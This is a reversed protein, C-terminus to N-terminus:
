NPNLNITQGPTFPKSMLHDIHYHDRHTATDGTGSTCNVVRINDPTGQGAAAKFGDNDILVAAMPGCSIIQDVEKTSRIIKAAELFAAQAEKNGNYAELHKLKKGGVELWELDIGKGCSHRSGSSCSGPRYLSWIGVKTFKGSSALAVMTKIVAPSVNGAYVANFIAGRNGEDNPVIVKKEKYWKDFESLDGSATSGDFVGGPIGSNGGGSGLGSCYNGTGAGNTNPDVGVPPIVTSGPAVPLGGTGPAQGGIGKEKYTKLQQEFYQKAVEITLGNNVVAGAHPYGPVAPLAQFERSAYGLARMFGDPGALIESLKKNDKMLQANRLIRGIALYDQSIPNFDVNIKHTYGAKDIAIQADPIDSTMIQYKGMNKNGGSGRDAYKGSEKVAILDLFAAEEPTIPAQVPDVKQALIASQAQAIIMFPNLYTISNIYSQVGEITQLYATQGNNSGKTPFTQLLERWENCDTRNFNAGAAPVYLTNPVNNGDLGGPCAGVGTFWAYAIKEAEPRGKFYTQVCAQANAAERRKNIVLRQAAQMQYVPDALFATTSITSVSEYTGPCWQAIGVCGIQNVTNWAKVNSEMPHIAMIFRITFEDVGAERGYKMIELLTARKVEIPKQELTTMTVTDTTGKLATAICGAQNGTGGGIGTGGSGGGTSGTGATTGTGPECGIGTIQSFIRCTQVLLNAPANGTSALLKASNLIFGNSCIPALTSHIAYGVVAVALTGILLAITVVMITFFLLIKGIADGVHNKKKKKKNARPIAPAVISDEPSPLYNATDPSGELSQPYRPTKPRLLGQGLSGTDARSSVPNYPNLRNPLNSNYGSSGSGSSNSGQPNYNNPRKQRGNQSGGVFKGDVYSGTSVGFNSGERGTDYDDLPKSVLDEEEEAKERKKEKSNYFSNDSTDSGLESANMKQGKGNSFDNENARDNVGDNFISPAGSALGGGVGALAGGLISAGPTREPLQYGGSRGQSQGGRSTTTTTKSSTSFTSDGKAGAQSSTEVKNPKIFNNPLKSSKTKSKEESIGSDKDLGGISGGIKLKNNEEGAIEREEKIPVENKTDIKKDTSKEKSPEEKQDPLQYNPEEKKTENEVKKTSEKINNGEIKGEVKEVVVQKSITEIKPNEIVEKKQEPLDYHKAEEQKNEEIVKTYEQNSSGEKSSTIVQEEERTEQDKDVIDKSSEKSFDSNFDTSNNDGEDNEEENQQTYKEVYESKTDVEKTFTKELIARNEEVKDDKKLIKELYEREQQFKQNKQELKPSQPIPRKKPSNPGYYQNDHKPKKLIELDM